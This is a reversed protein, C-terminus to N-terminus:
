RTAEDLRQARHDPDVDFAHVLEALRVDAGLGQDQHIGTLM